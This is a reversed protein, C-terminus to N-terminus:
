FVAASTFSFMQLTRAFGACDVAPVPGGGCADTGYFVGGFTCQIKVFNAVPAMPPCPGGPIVGASFPPVGIWVSPCWPGFTCPAASYTYIGMVRVPCPTNNFFNLQASASNAAFMMLIGFFSALILKKM